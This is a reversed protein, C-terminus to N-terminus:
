PELARLRLRAAEAHRADARQLYQRYAATADSARGLRELCQARQWEADDGRRGPERILAVLDSLAGRCDKREDLYVRARLWHLDAALAAAEPAALLRESAVLAEDLRGLARLSQVRLWEVEVRMVGRPFRAKHEDLLAIAASADDLQQATLRAAEYSAVEGAVGGRAAIAGFCQIAERTQKRAALARCRQESPAEAEPPPAERVPDPERPAPEEARPIAVSRRPADKPRGPRESAVATPLAPPAEAVPETPEPPVPVTEPQELPLPEPQIESAATVDSSDVGRVVLVVAALGAALVGYWSWRAGSGQRATELRRFAAAEDLGRLSETQVRRLVAAVM